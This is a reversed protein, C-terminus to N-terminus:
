KGFVWRGKIQQALQGGHETYWPHEVVSHFKWEIYDVLDLHKKQFDKEPLTWLSKLSLHEDAQWELFHGNMTELLDLQIIRGPDKRERAKQFLFIMKQISYDDVQLIKKPQPASAANLVKLVRNQQYVTWPTVPDYYGFQAGSIDVAFVEGSRLKLQLVEHRVGGGLYLVRPQPMRTRRKENKTRVELQTAAM